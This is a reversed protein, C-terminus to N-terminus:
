KREVGRQRGLKGWGEGLQGMEDWEEFHKRGMGGLLEAHSDHALTGDPM